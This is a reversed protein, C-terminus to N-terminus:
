GLDQPDNIEIECQPMLDNEAEHLKLTAARRDESGLTAVGSAILVTAIRGMQHDTALSPDRDEALLITDVYMDAVEVGAHLRSSEGLSRVVLTVPEDHGRRAELREKLEKLSVNEVIYVESM